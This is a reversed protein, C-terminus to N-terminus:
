RLLNFRVKLAYRQPFRIGLAAGELSDQSAGEASALAATM